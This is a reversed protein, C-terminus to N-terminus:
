FIRKLIEETVGHKNLTYFHLGEAGSEWLGGCQKVAYDLGIEFQDKLSKDEMKELLPKPISAGCMDTFKVAQSLNVLPMIGAVVPINIGAKRVKDLYNYFYFNDFFLQTIIFDAGEDVKRKLNDIDEAMSGAEPHKEPYGAVGISFHDGTTKRIYRVLDAAYQFDKTPKFETTGAPIDGRLALINDVRSEKLSQTASDIVAADAGICTFHMMVSYDHDEKMRKTWELTKETTSGGAGYTVSVFEPNYRRLKKITEFLVQESEQKKPPFFEFSVSRKDKLIESIKM